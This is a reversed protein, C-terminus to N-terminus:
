ANEIDIINLCRRLTEFKDRCLAKTFIDACQNDTAVYQTDIECDKVKECIFQYRVDIHKSRRHFEPNKSLKIASQNDVKLVTPLVCPHEIDNLLKRLWVAEKTAECAAIFEAETTSLSVTSQRKSAWTICGGSLIFAYGTTSRRTDVDGAHDSDSYGILANPQNSYVIGFNDTGKLYRFIRKVATWHSNDYNDLYRSVVSVAYAIDPRSVISLFLLSGAERYPPNCQKEGNAPKKLRVNPDALTTVVNADVMNFKQLLKFIYNKQHIHISKPQRVIEMGVFYKLDSTTIHFELKLSDTIKNLVNTDPALILGDDVYLALYIKKNDITAIYVCKDASSQLFGLNKLFDDFKRNWCRGSQKLGYIAKNLKLVANKDNVELGDPIRMYTTKELDSNLYATSVDFQIAKLNCQVAIALLVRISEYRVVPSFIEGYDIDAHQSCGKACLRAKHRRMNEDEPYKIKFVWIFGIPKRGKPLSVIEWTKNKSHAQLEEHIAREWFIADTGSLAEEYTRPNNYIATCAIYRDPPRLDDRDRLNYRPHELENRSSDRDDPSDTTSPANDMIEPNDRPFEFFAEPETVITKASEDFVVNRSITIRGTEM